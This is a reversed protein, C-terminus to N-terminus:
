VHALRGQILTSNKLIDETKKVFILIGSGPDDNTAGCFFIHYLHNYHTLKRPIQDYDTLRTEQLSLCITNQEDLIKSIFDVKKERLGVTKLGRVNFQIIDGMTPPPIQLSAKTEFM